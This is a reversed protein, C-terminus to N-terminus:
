ITRYLSKVDDIIQLVDQNELPRLPQVADPNIKRVKEFNITGSYITTIVDIHVMKEKLFDDLTKLALQTFGDPEKTHNIYMKITDVNVQLLSQLRRLLLANNQKDGPLNRIKTPDLREDLDFVDRLHMHQTSLFDMLTRIADHYSYEQMKPGTTDSHRQFLLTKTREENILRSTENKLDAIFDKPTITNKKQYLLIVFAALKQIIEKTTMDCLFKECQEVKMANSECNRTKDPHVGLLLAKYMRLLDSPYKEFIKDYFCNLFTELENLKVISSSSM